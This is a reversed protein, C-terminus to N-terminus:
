FRWRFEFRFMENAWRQDTFSFASGVGFDIRDCIVLRLGPGASALNGKADIGGDTGGVTGLVPDTRRGSLATWGNLELTGILQLDNCPKWLIQNISFHYDFINGQFGSTGGTPIWLGTYAQLYTSPTLRVGWIFAPELSVHGTSLGQNPAGTAIFTKFGFTIQILQCDLLMAKTAITLDSFGSASFDGEIHRYPMEISIGARGAAAEMYLKVESVDISSVRTHPGKGGQQAWFFEARDPSNMDWMQDVRLRLQTIPRAADVFYAADAVALWVPYYCPDPCCVCQYVGNIFRGLCTDTSCCCDCPRRGPLCQGSGCGCGLCDGGGGGLLGGGCTSCGAQTIGDATPMTPIPKVGEAGNTPSAAPATSEDNQARAAPIPGLAAVLLVAAMWWRRAQSFPKGRM